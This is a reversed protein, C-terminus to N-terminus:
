EGGDACRTCGTTGRAIHLDFRGEVSLTDYDQQNWIARQYENVAAHIWKYNANARVAQLEDYLTPDPDRALMEIAEDALDPDRPWDYALSTFYDKPEGLEWIAHLASRTIFEFGDIYITAIQKLKPIHAPNGSEAALLTAYVAAEGTLQFDLVLDLAEDV